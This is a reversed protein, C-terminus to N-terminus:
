EVGARAPAARTIGRAAIALAGVLLVAAMLFPIGPVNWAQYPGVAAAFAQTFVIPATMSAIGMLSGQAGQLRGQEDAGVRGTMLSQLAPSAVGYLASLPIGALFGLGTPSLAFVLNGAAGSLYGMALAGREGLASVLRGVLLGQVLMSAVGVLALVLGVDRESWSYRYTAYLVFTSPAADHALLSLFGATALALLEPRSRLFAFSGIPNASAWHFSRRREEPLSEPLIFFGYAANMLSLVAACWFPARLSVGALLGGLSPGIVFGIGFAVGLMGFKAARQEQPTVDAIYAGATGYTSSTIGSVVRGAFLWWLSPAVAMFLYDLGLGTCSILIVRRRGFRDSLAGLVPSFVFQMAAFVSAFLGYLAAGSSTDGGRFEVILNPLVPIIIGLALMDIVVTVFVFAFAARGHTRGGAV